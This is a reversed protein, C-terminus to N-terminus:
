QGAMVPDALDWTHDILVAPHSPLAANGSGYYDGDAVTLEAARQVWDLVEGGTGGIDAWLSLLYQGAPLPLRPIQCRVVGSPPLEPLTEGRTVTYLHLMTEGLVTSITVSVNVNRLAAGSPVEYDLLLEADRGTMLTESPDGDLHLRLGQFRLRGSGTRDDRQSIDMSADRRLSRVYREIIQHTDGEDIKHGRELLMARDCFQEVASLNHSVFLVTRGEGTVKRMRGMCKEQFALDGVSLVEDVILIDPELHAAVAFALRLFMGSSYRKVPTYIFREVEAFAVIEDFRRRVEERGLGLIAGNLYINEAGTLEPHFGTGVELLAGVRGYIDVEGRTLPTVRSLIKLLTSKGSGNHGVIGFSEGTRVEFDVDQLAWFEREAERGDRRRPSFRQALRESLLEYGGSVEGLRFRKSVGTARVALDSM